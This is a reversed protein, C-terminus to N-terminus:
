YSLFCLYIKHLFINERLNIPPIKFFSAFNIFLLSDLLQLFILDIWCKM